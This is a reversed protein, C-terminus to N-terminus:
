RRADGGGWVGGLVMPPGLVGSFGGWVWLVGASGGMAGYFEGMVCLVGGYGYSGWEGWLIGRHGM